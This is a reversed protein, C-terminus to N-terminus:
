VFRNFKALSVTLAHESFGQDDTAAQGPQGQSCLKSCL